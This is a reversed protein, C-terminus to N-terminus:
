SNLSYSWLNLPTFFQTLFQFSQSKQMETKEENVNNNEQGKFVQSLSCNHGGLGGGGEFLSGESVESKKYYKSAFM